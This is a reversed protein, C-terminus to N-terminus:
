FYFTNIINARQYFYNGSKFCIYLQAPGWGRQLLYFHLTEKWDKSGFLPFQTYNETKKTKTVRNPTFLQHEELQILEVQGSVM